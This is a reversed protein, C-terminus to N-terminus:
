PNHKLLYEAVFEVPNPPKEESLKQLAELLTPMVSADIYQKIALPDMDPATKVQTDM